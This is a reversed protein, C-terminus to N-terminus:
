ATRTGASPLNSSTSSATPLTGIEKAKRDRSTGQAKKAGHYAYAGSSAIQLGAELGSVTRVASNAAELSTITSRTGLALNKAIQGATEDQDQILQNLGVAYSQGQAGSEGGAVRARARVKRYEKMRAGLEETAKTQQEELMHEAQKQQAQFQSKAAQNTQYIGYGTTAIALAAMAPPPLCM